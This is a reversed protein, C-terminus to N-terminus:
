LLCVPPSAIVLVRVVWREMAASTNAMPAAAHPVPVSACDPPGGTGNLSPVKSRPPCANTPSTKFSVWTASTPGALAAKSAALADAGFSAAGPSM